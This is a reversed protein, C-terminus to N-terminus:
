NENRKQIYAKTEYNQLCKSFPKALTDGSAKLFRGLLKDVIDAKSTKVDQM